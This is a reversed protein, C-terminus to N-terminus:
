SKLLVTAAAIRETTSENVRMLIVGQTMRGLKPVDAINIKIVTGKTTSLVLYEHSTRVGIAGVLRGTKPSIVAAKVGQGSRLQLPWEAYSTKKGLGKESITLVDVTSKPDEVMLGVLTDGDKM